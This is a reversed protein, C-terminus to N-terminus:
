SQGSEGSARERELRLRKLALFKVFQYSYWALNGYKRADYRGVAESVVQKMESTSIIASLKERPVVKESVEDTVYDILRKFSEPDKKCDLKEIELSRADWKIPHHKSRPM